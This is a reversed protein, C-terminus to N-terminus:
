STRGDQSCVTVRIVDRDSGRREAVIRDVWRDDEFLIGKAADLIAKVQNDLDCNHPAPGDTLITISVQLPERGLPAVGMLRRRMEWALDQQHALYRRANPRAHKGRRTMRVYPIVHEAIEVHLCRVENM